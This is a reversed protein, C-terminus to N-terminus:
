RLVGHVECGSCDRHSSDHDIDKAARNAVSGCCAGQVTAVASGDKEYSWTSGSYGGGWRSGGSCSTKNCCGTYGEGDGELDEYDTSGCQSCHVGEVMKASIRIM